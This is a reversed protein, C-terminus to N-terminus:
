MGLFMIDVDYFNGFACIVLVFTLVCVRTHLPIFFNIGSIKKKTNELFNQIQPTGEEPIDRHAMGWYGTGSSCCSHSPLNSLSLIKFFLTFFSLFFCSYEHSFCDFLCSPCSVNDLFQLYPGFAGKQKVFFCLVYVFPSHRYLGACEWDRHLMSILWRSITEAAIGGRGSILSREDSSFLALSLHVICRFPLCWVPSLFNWPSFVLFLSFNFYSFVCFVSFVIFVMSKCCAQLM